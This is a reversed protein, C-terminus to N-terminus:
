LKPFIRNSEFCSATKSRMLLQQKRAPVPNRNLKHESPFSVSWNKEVGLVLPQLLPHSARLQRRQRRGLPIQPAAVRKAPM